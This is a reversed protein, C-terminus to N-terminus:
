DDKLDDGRAKRIERVVPHNYYVSESECDWDGQILSDWLAGLAKKASAHTADPKIGGRKTLLQDAVADFHTTAGCWGM